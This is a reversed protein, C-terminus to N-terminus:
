CFRDEGSHHQTHREEEENSDGSDSEAHVPGNSVTLVVSRVRRLVSLETRYGLPTGAIASHCCKHLEPLLRSVNSASSSSYSFACM